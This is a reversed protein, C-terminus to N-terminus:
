GVPTATRAPALPLVKGAVDYIERVEDRSLRPLGRTKARRRLYKRLRDGSLVDVERITAIDWPISPGYVAVVPRVSIDRGLAASLRERAQGAEWRAHELREKKSDPGHWLQKGNRTRIPMKKDWKESDIAYVGTPGVLLHDIVEISGPIPRAHWALYGARQMRVLQKRTSRQARDLKGPQPVSGVTRTRYITDAIGALIALTLGTPWDVIISFVVGVVLMILVRMRWLRIRADLTLDRVRTREPQDVSGGAAGDDGAGFRSFPGPPSGRDEGAPQPPLGTAPQSQPPEQVAVTGVDAALPERDPQGTPQEQPVETTEHPVETTEVGLIEIGAAAQRGDHDDHWDAATDEPRESAPETEVVTHRTGSVGTNQGPGHAPEADPTPIVTIHSGDYERATPLASSRPKKIRPWTMRRVVEAYRDSEPV